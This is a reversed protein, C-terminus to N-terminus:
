RRGSADEAPKKTRKITPDNIVKYTEDAALREILDPNSVAWQQGTEKNEFWKIM